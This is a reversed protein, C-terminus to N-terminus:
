VDTKRGSRGDKKLKKDRRVKKKALKPEWEQLRNLVAYNTLDLHIPTVSVMRDRIALDDTDKRDEWSTENAGIWYYARGRPDTKAVINNRDYIRKGLCTAKVGRIASIPLNPVNVNLLTDKPLGYEGIL